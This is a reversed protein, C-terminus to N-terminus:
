FKRRNTESALQKHQKRQDSVAESNKKYAKEAKELTVRNDDLTKKSQNVVERYGGSEESLKAMRKATKHSIKGTSDIERQAKNAAKDLAALESAVGKIAKKAGSGDGDLNIFLGALTDSM